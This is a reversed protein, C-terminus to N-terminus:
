DEVVADRRQGTAQEIRTTWRTAEKRDPPLGVLNFYLRRVLTSPSAPTVPQLGATQLRDIIFRDIPHRNWTSDNVTPPVPQQISQFSWWQKRRKLTTDWSTAAAVEDASLPKDRPDTAGMAIWKEFDAITEDSLKPDGRPMEKGKIEHRLIALLRSNGPNSPVIIKGGDGGELVAERHDLALGGEVTDASNHCEYCHEVFVPRIRAEFFEVEGALRTEDAAVPVLFWTSLTILTGCACMLAGRATGRRRRSAETGSRRSSKSEILM